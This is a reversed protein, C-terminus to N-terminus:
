LEAPTRKARKAHDTQSNWRRVIICEKIYLFVRLRSSGGGGRCVSSGRVNFQGSVASLGCEGRGTISDWYIPWKSSFGVRWCWDFRGTGM